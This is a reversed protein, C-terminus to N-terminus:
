KFTDLEYIFDKFRSLGSVNKKKSPRGSGTQHSEKGFMRGWCHL